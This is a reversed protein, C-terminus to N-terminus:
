RSGEKYFKTIANIVQTREDLTRIDESNSETQEAFTEVNRQTARLQSELQTVRRALNALMDIVAPSAQTTDVTELPEIVVFERNAIYGEDNGDELSTKAANCIIGNYVLGNVELIDGYAYMGGTSWPSTILIKDGVVAKRDVEVFAVGNVVHTKAM